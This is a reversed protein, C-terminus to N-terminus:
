GLIDFLTQRNMRAFAAQAAQLTLDTANLEAIAVSLDTDEVDKREDALTIRRAELSDGIRELRGASLGMAARQDAVHGISDGLTTLAAGIATADGSTIAAAADRLGTSLSNGGVVFVDAVSPVPAFSIDADFRVQKANAAFLPEGNSDRTAAFGDIEDAIASLEAAISARDAPNTTATSASLTLERARTLLNGVSGLTTDAQSVQASATKINAAWTTSSAQAKGITAIRRSAVPDDSARLLKKGSSIQTQIRDLADSLKSQRAIERTMRNGVANIM